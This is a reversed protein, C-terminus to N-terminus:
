DSSDVVMKKNKINYDGRAYKEAEKIFYDSDNKIFELASLLQVKSARYPLTKVKIKGDSEYYMYFKANKFETREIYSLKEVDDRVHKYLSM